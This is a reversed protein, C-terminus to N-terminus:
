PDKLWIVIDFAYSYEGGTIYVIDTKKTVYNYKCSRIRSTQIEGKVIIMHKRTNMHLEVIENSLEIIFTNAKKTWVVM